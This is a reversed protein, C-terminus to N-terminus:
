ELHIAECLLCPYDNIFCHAHVSKLCWAIFPMSVCVCQQGTHKQTVHYIVLTQYSSLYLTNVVEGDADGTWQRRWTQTSAWQKKWCTQKQLSFCRWTLQWVCKKLGHKTSYYCILGLANESKQRSERWYQWFFMLVSCCASGASVGALFVGLCKRELYLTFINFWTELNVYCNVWFTLETTIEKNGHQHFTLHLKM